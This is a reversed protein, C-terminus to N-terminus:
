EAARSEPTAPALEPDIAALPIGFRWEIGGPHGIREVQAGLAGGVMSKLVTTGFGKRAAQPATRVGYERWGLDLMGEGLTWSLTLTGESEGFAGYKVANTSLEHIAMGLIQAAQANLRVPPGSLTVRGPEDPRFPALHHEILERLEVGVRGHALLLDTSRALGMIRREFSQVYSPLDEASRATQKAMATIVTMQNKSRHALERMLFRVEREAKQREISALELADSVQAAETIPYPKAVIVEGAGLRRADRAIGRVSGAIMRALWTMALLILALLVVGGAILSSMAVLLPQAIVAQPAWTVLKWGTAGSRQIVAKAPGGPTQVTQWGVSFPLGNISLADFNAGLEGGGPTASLIRGANDLLAANWGEPLGNSSLAPSFNTARQNLAILKRGESGLDVPLLINYVWQKSVAGYVLDSVVVSNSDFARQAATPDNTLTAPAEFPQRTSAFTTFDPNVIFLNTDTDALALVTRAYFGRYDHDRLSPSSALVRLTTTNAAIEREVAQVIARSSSVILTEVTSEQAKQNRQILVGTFVFSPLVSVVALASLYFAISRQVGKRMPRDPARAQKKRAMAKEEAGWAPYRLRKDLM